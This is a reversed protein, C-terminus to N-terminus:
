TMSMNIEVCQHKEASKKAAEDREDERVEQTQRMSAM